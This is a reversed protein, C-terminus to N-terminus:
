EDDTSEKLAPRQEEAYEQCGEIFSDSNGACNDPDDIGNKKAWEYGAEHGSCDVTCPYGSFTPLPNAPITPQQYVQQPQYNPQSQPENETITSIHDSKEGTFILVAVIIGAVWMWPSKM